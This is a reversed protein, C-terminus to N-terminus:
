PYSHKTRRQAEKGPDQGERLGDVVNDPPTTVYACYLLREGPPQTYSSFENM